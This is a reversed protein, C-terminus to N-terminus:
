LQHVANSLFTKGMVYQGMVNTKGMVYQLLKYRGWGM